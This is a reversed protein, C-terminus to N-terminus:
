RQELLPADVSEQAGRLLVAEVALAFGVGAGIGLADYALDGVSPTGGCALDVLEKGVGVVAGAGVGAVVRAWLPADLAAATVWAADTIALSAGFHALKDTGSLDPAQTALALLVAIM